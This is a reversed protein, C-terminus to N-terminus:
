LFSSLVLSSILDSVHFFFFFFLSLTGIAVLLESLLILSASLQFNAHAHAHTYRLLTPLKPQTPNALSQHDGHVHLDHHAPINRRVLTHQITVLGIPYWGPVFNPHCLMLTPLPKLNPTTFFSLYNSLICKTEPSQDLLRYQSLWIPENSM